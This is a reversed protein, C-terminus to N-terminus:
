FANNIVRKIQVKPSGFNILIASSNKTGRLYNLVQVLHNDELAKITKLEVIVFKEVYLDAFYEGVIKGQYHVPIPYQQNVSLGSKRLEIALANEYVEELFGAGLTNSVKFAKGIIEETIRDMNYAM